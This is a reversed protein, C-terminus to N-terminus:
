QYVKQIRFKPFYHALIQRYTYGKLALEKAGFQCMGVGHGYGSGKVLFSNGNDTINYFNSPLSKRGMIARLRSKKLTKFKDKCYFKLKASIQEDNLLRMPDNNKIFKDNSYKKLAKYFSSFLNKKDIKRTWNKMGHKQCYLCSVSVYGPVKNNWVQDPRLTKGGCKSHFFIPALKNNNVVLVEGKTFKTAKTTKRTIDFFDGSVQHFESNELDYNVKFGKSRSVQKNKIKYLAYSRAAVAQAKLAEIPWKSSMEKSLLSKIYYELSLENILDCGDLQESTQVHIKGWYSKKKWHVLGTKSRISALRLPKTKFKSKSNSECNFDIKKKGIYSKNSKRPWIYREIDTGSLRIRDQSSAIKVKISPVKAFSVSTLILLVSGLAKNM